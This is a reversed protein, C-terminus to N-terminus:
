ALVGRFSRRHVITLGLERLARYHERTGYGKHKSFGYGPYDMELQAMIRDRMVKAVISAAAVCHCTSDGHIVAVQRYDIQPITLADNILCDPRVRLTRLAQRAADYTAELINFKEIYEVGSVGVSVAEARQLIENLLIERQKATLKKSDDVGNVEVGARFVVVGVVVPGAIPGRGAEDLGCLFTNGSNFM